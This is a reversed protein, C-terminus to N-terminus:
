YYELKRLEVQFPKGSALLIRETWNGHSDYSIYQYGENFFDNKQLLVDGHENYEDTGYPQGNKLTAIRRGNEYQYTMTDIWANPKDFHKDIEIVRMDGAYKISRESSYSITDNEYDAMFFYLLNGSEDFREIMNVLGDQYIVSESRVSSPYYKDEHWRSGDGIILKVRLGKLYYYRAWNEHVILTDGSMEIKSVKTTNKDEYKHFGGTMIGDKDYQYVERSTVKGNDDWHITSDIKGAFHDRYYVKYSPVDEKKYGWDEILKGEKTFLLTYVPTGQVLKERTTSGDAAVVLPYVYQTISKIHGKLNRLRNPTMGDIHDRKDYNLSLYDPVGTPASSKSCSLAVFALLCLSIIRM